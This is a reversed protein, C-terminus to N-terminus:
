IKFKAACWSNKEKVAVLQLGLANCKQTIMELDEGVYFGSLFITGNQQLVQTYAPLDRLLINRNINAIIINYKENETLLSADGLKVTIAEANNRTNNELNNLHAWEDNDIATIPQAGRLHALIALVGTGAGMDLV